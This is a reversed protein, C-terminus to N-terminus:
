MEIISRQVAVAVAKSRTDVGLKMLVASVHNEVTRKSLFLKDAIEGNSLGLAMSELVELQRPTLGEPNARTAKM